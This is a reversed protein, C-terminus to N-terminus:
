GYQSRAKVANRKKTIVARLPPVALLLRSFRIPWAMTKSLKLDESTADSASLLYNLAYRMDRAWYRPGRASFEEKLIGRVYCEYMQMRDFQTMTNASTIHITTGVTSSVAIEKKYLNEAWFLWDENYELDERFPKILASKRVLPASMPLYNAKLLPAASTLPIQRISEDGRKDNQYKAATIYASSNPHNTLYSSGVELKNVALEDDADLFQIFTGQAKTLGQNRAHSRGKMSQLIHIRPDAQVLHSMVAATQDTSGNNVILIEFDNLTQKRVSQVARKLTTAANYAPIIISVKVM